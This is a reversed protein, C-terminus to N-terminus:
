PLTTLRNTEVTGWDPGLYPHFNIGDDSVLLSVDGFRPELESSTRVPSSSQNTVSLELQIPVGLVWDYKPADLRAILAGSPLVQGRVTSVVLGILVWYTASRVRTTM